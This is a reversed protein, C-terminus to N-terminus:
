KKNKEERRKAQAIKAAEKGVASKYFRKRSIFWTSMILLIIISMGGFALVPTVWRPMSSPAKLGYITVEITIYNFGDIQSSEILPNKSYEFARDFMRVTLKSSNASLNYNKNEIIDLGIGPDLLRHKNLRRQIQKLNKEGSLGKTETTLGIGNFQLNQVEKVKSNLDIKNVINDKKGFDNDKINMKVKLKPLNIFEEGSGIFLFDNSLQSDKAKPRLKIGELTYFGSEPDPLVNGNTFGWGSDWSDLEESNSYWDNIEWVDDFEKWLIENEFGSLKELSDQISNYVWGIMSNYDDFSVEHGDEWPFWLDTNSLDFRNIYNTTSSQLFSNRFRSTNSSEINSITVNGSEQIQGYRNEPILNSDTIEINYDTGLKSGAFIDRIKQQSIIPNKVKSEPGKEDFGRLSYSLQNKFDDVYDQRKDFNRNANYYFPNTQLTKLDLKEFVQSTYIPENNEIINKFSYELKDGSYVISNNLISIGPKGIINLPSDLFLIKRAVGGSIMNQPNKYSYQYISQNTTVVINYNRNIEDYYSYFGNVGKDEYVDKEKYKETFKQPLLEFLKVMKNGDMYYIAEENNSDTAAFITQQSDGSGRHDTNTIYTIEQKDFNTIVNNIPDQGKVISYSYFDAGSMFNLTVQNDNGLSFNINRPNTPISPLEQTMVKVNGMRSSDLNGNTNNETFCDNLDYSTVFYKSESTFFMYIHNDKSSDNLQRTPAYVKLVQASESFENPMDLQLKKDKNVADPEIDLINIKKNKGVNNDAYALYKTKYDKRGLRNYISSFATTSANYSTESTSVDSEVSVYGDNKDNKIIFSKLNEGSGNTASVAMNYIVEEKGSNPDSYKFIALNKKLFSADKGQAEKMLGIGYNKNRKANLNYKENQEDNGTALNFTDSDVGELKTTREGFMNLVGTQEALLAVPQASVTIGGLLTLLTKM